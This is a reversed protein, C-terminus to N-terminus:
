NVQLLYQNEHVYILSCIFQDNVRFIFIFGFRIVFYINM